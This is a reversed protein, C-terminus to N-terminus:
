AEKANAYVVVNERYHRSRRDFSGGCTILRLSPQATPGYVAITPFRKKDYRETREVTFPVVRGDVLTVAIEDGAQLESLRFFVAPGTRSDLHGVIVATGVQGPAELGTYWSTRAFDTPVTITGDDNRGTPDVPAAVGLKPISIQAPAVAPTAAPAAPAPVSADALSPGGATATTAVIGLMLQVVIAVSLAIVARGSRRM